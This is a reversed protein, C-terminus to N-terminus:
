SEAELVVRIKYGQNELWDAYKRAEHLSAHIRSRTHNDKKGYVVFVVNTFKTIEVKM